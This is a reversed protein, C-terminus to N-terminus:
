PAEKVTQGTGLCTWQDKKPDHRWEEFHAGPFAQRLNMVAAEWSLGAPENAPEDQPPEPRAKSRARISEIRAALRDAPTLDSRPNGTRRTTM